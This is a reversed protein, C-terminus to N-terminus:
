TAEENPWYDTVSRGAAQALAKRIRAIKKGRAVQSVCQPTVQPTVARAVDSFTLGKLALDHKLRIATRQTASLNNKIM